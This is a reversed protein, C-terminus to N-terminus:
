LSAPFHTGEPHRPLLSFPNVWLSVSVTENQKKSLSESNTCYNPLVTDQEEKPRQLAPGAQRCVLLERFIHLSDNGAYLNWVEAWIRMILWMSPHILYSFKGVNEELKLDGTMKGLLRPMVEHERSKKKFLIIGRGLRLETRWMRYALGLEKASVM